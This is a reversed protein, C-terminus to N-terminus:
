QNITVISNKLQGAGFRRILEWIDKNMMNVCGMSSPKGISAEDQTGHVYIKRSRSTSNRKESGDLVFIVSTIARGGGNISVKGARQRAKFSTVRGNKPADGVVVEVIKHRGLPTKNSGHESGIGYKSTSVKYVKYVDRGVFVTLTQNKISVVFSPKGGGNTPPPRKTLNTYAEPWTQYQIKVKHGHDLYHRVLEPVYAVPAVKLKHIYKDYRTVLAKAREKPTGKQLGNPLNANINKQITKPLSSNGQIHRLIQCYGSAGQQHALYVSTAPRLNLAEAHKRWDRCTNDLLKQTYKTYSVAIKANLVPDTKAQNFQKSTFGADLAARIGIQYAGYFNNGALNKRNLFQGEIWTVASAAPPSLGTGKAFLSIAETINKPLGTVATILTTKKGTGLVCGDHSLAILELLASTSKAYERLLRKNSDLCHQELTPPFQSDVDEVVPKTHTPGPGHIALALLLTSTSLLM